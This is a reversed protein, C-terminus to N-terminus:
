DKTQLTSTNTSPSTWQVEQVSEPRKKTPANEGERFSLTTGASGRKSKYKSVYIGFESPAQYEGPGPLELPMSISLSKVTHIKQSKSFDERATTSVARRQHRSPQYALRIPKVKVWGWISSISALAPPSTGESGSLGQHIKAQFEM